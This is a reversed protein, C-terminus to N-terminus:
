SNNELSYVQTVVDFQIQDNSLRIVACEVWYNHLIVEKAFYEIQLRWDHWHRYAFVVFM